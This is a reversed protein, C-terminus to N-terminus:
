ACGPHPSAPVSPEAVDVRAPSLSPTRERGVSLLRNLPPAFAGVYVGVLVLGGGLLFAPTIAENALIAALTITVLPMLLMAYSTV